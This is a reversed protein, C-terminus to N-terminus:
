RYSSKIGGWTAPEVPVTGLDEYCIDTWRARCSAPVTQVFAQIHGGVRADNLIGWTGFPENPNGQDFALPGSQYTQGLYVVTYEITGPDQQSLSNPDYRIELHISNGRTYTIAHQGTFSYFPLRGGFCAIEGDTTRVNLRGDVDQSWWPAIQLGAEGHGTGSIVLDACFRFGDGNNFVLPNTSDGSFRWNHLNAFGSVCNLNDDIVIEAPYNNTTTLVSTPCDNFIRTRIVASNPIPSTAGSEPALAALAILVVAASALARYINTRSM